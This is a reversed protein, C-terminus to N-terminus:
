VIVVRVSLESIRIKTQLDSQECDVPSIKNLIEATFRSEDGISNIEFQQIDGRELSCIASRQIEIDDLDYGAQQIGIAAQDFLKSYGRRIADLDLQNLPMDMTISKELLIKPAPRKMPCDNSSISSISSIPNM